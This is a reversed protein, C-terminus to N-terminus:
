KHIFNSGLRKKAEDIRKDHRKLKSFHGMGMKFAVMSILWM